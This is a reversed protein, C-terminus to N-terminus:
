KSTDEDHYGARKDRYKVLWDGVVHGGTDIAVFVDFFKAEDGYGDAEDDGNGEM